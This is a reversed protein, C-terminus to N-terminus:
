PNVTLEGIQENSGHDEIEFVGDITAPFSVRVAKGATLPKDIDYGHIHIEGGADSDVLFTIREGNDFELKTLGGVPKGNRLVITETKVAPETTGTPGTAAQTTTSNDSSEDSGGQLVIFLVVVAAVVSVAAAIKAGTSQM